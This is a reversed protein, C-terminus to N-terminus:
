FIGNEGKTVGTNAIVQLTGNENVTNRVVETRQGTNRIINEKHKEGDKAHAIIV